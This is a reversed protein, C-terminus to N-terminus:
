HNSRYLTSSGESDQKTYIIEHLAQPNESSYILRYREVGSSDCLCIYDDYVKHIGVFEMYKDDYADGVHSIAAKLNEDQLIVTVPLCGDYGEFKLVRKKHLVAEVYDKFHPYERYDLGAPSNVQLWGAYEAEAKKKSYDKYYRISLPIILLVIVTLAIYVLRNRRKKDTSAEIFNLEEELSDPQESTSDRIVQSESPNELWEKCYRCKKASAIIDKGCHPCIKYEKEM